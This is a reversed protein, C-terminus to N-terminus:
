RGQAPLSENHFAVPVCNRSEIFEPSLRYRKATYIFPHRRPFRSSDRSYAGSEAQIHLILLSVRSTVAFEDVSVLNDPAFSSLSM